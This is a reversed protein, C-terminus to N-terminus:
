SGRWYPVQRGPIVCGDVLLLLSLRLCSAVHRKPFEAFSKHPMAQELVTHVSRSLVIVGGNTASWSQPFFCKREPHIAWWLCHRTPHVQIFQHFRKLRAASCFLGLLGLVHLLLAYLLYWEWDAPHGTVFRSSYPDSKVDTGHANCPTQAPGREHLNTSRVWVRPLVTGLLDLPCSKSTRHSRTSVPVLLFMNLM